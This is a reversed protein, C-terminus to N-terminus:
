DSASPSSLLLQYLQQLASGPEIGLEQRLAEQCDRYQRIALSRRGQLRYYQMLSFHAEELCNDIQLMRRWHEAGEDFDRRQWAIRALQRRAQLYATRLEDRRVSCWNSYFPRGYDGRYLEVAELFAARAATEDGLALAREAETCRTQFIQVDYWIQEGYYAALHLRYGGAQFVVCPAGLIKRLYYLTSHFTQDIQEDFQPWLETVIQEKSLPHSADLLFFFLEMTRAMRWRKLPRGNLLVEPEGFARITLGPTPLEPEGPKSAAPLDGAKQSSEAEVCLLERLRALQPLRKITQFLAPLWQLEVLVSQKYHVHEALRATVEELLRLAESTHELALQCAALRLRVALLRQELGRSHLAAEAEKLREYAMTYREQYLLILGYALAHEARRMETTQLGTEQLNMQDLFLFASAADGLFLYVMSLAPVVLNKLNDDEWRYALALADEYFPLAQPYRQQELHLLGLHALAYGQCAPAATSIRALGLAKQLVAEAEEYRGQERYLDGRCLLNNVIGQEDRLQECCKLARTLHHEALAFNGTLYYARGLAERIEEIQQEELPINQQYLVEQLIPIGSSTNRLHVACIGLMTRAAIGLDSEQEPLRQLTQQCVAQAQHYDGAQCLARARLLDIEASLRHSPPTACTAPQNALLASARELLRLAPAHQRRALAVSAQILLLHPTNEWIALPLADFWTTLTDLSRRQLLQRYSALLIQIALEYNQIELAHYMAQEYNQRALWLEAARRHLAFFRDADQHRLQTSLLHRIVQHCIYVAQQDSSVFLGQEELRALREASGTSALLADCMEADICQLLSVSQLFRYLTPYHQFVENAVYALLNDQRPILTDKSAFLSNQGSARHQDSLLSRVDGLYTGSLIGAIWGDFFTALREADAPALAALGRLRALESIETASFRLVGSNLVYLEGHIMLQALAINPYARSEVVLVVQPPLRTLWYSFLDALMESESIQEYNCLFFAFRGSVEYELSQCLADIAQRYSERSAHTDQTLQNVSAMGLSASLQPFVQGLSTFLNPLFVSPDADTHELFYWCCTLSTSAAFDALLTTKGYGAPACLLVLKRPTRRINGEIENLIAERLASILRTRHLIVTPLPPHGFKKLYHTTQM